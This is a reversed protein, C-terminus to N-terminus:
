FSVAETTLLEYNHKDVKKIYCNTHKEIKKLAKLAKKNKKKM